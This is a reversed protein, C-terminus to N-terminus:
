PIIYYGEKSEPYFIYKFNYIKNKNPYYYLRKTHINKDRDINFMQKSKVNEMCVTKFRKDIKIIKAKIYIPAHYKKITSDKNFPKYTMVYTFKADERIIKDDNTNVQMNVEGIIITVLLTVTLTCILKFTLEQKM